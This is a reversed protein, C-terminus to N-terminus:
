LCVLVSKLIGCRYVGYGTETDSDHGEKLSCSYISKKASGEYTRTVDLRLDCLDPNLLSSGIV